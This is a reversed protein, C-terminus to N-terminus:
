YEQTSKIRQRLTTDGLVKVTTPRIANLKLFSPIWSYESKMTLLWGRKITQVGLCLMRSIRPARSTYLLSSSVLYSYPGVPKVVLSNKNQSFIFWISTTRGCKWHTTEDKSTIDFFIWLLSLLLSNRTMSKMTGKQRNYHSPIIRLQTGVILHTLNNWFLVRLLTVLM